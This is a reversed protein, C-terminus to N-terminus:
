LEILARRLSWFLFTTEVKNHTRHACVYSFSFLIIPFKALHGSFVAFSFYHSSLLFALSFEYYLVFMDLDLIKEYCCAYLQLHLAYHMPMINFVLILIHHSNTTHIPTVHIFYLVCMLRVVMSELLHLFLILRFSESFTIFIQSSWVRRPKGAWLSSLRSAFHFKRILLKM